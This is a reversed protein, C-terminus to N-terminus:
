KLIFSSRRALQLVTAKRRKTGYRIIRRVQEEGVIECHKPAFEKLYVVMEDEFDRSTAHEFVLM